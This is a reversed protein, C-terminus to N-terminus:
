MDTMIICYLVKLAGSSMTVVVDAEAMGPEKSGSEVEKSIVLNYYKIERQRKRFRYKM